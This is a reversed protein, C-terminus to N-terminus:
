RNFVKIFIIEEVIQINQRQISHEHVELGECLETFISPVLTLTFVGHAETSIVSDPTESPVLPADTIIFLSLNSIVPSHRECPSHSNSM